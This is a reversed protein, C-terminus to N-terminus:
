LENIVTITTKGGLDEKDIHREDQPRNISGHLYIDATRAQFDEITEGEELIITKEVVVTIEVEFVKDPEYGIELLKDKICYNTDGIQVHENESYFQLQLLAAIFESNIENM